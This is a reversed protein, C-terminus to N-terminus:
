RGLAWLAPKNRRRYVTVSGSIPNKITATAETLALVERSTTLAARKSSLSPVVLAVLDALAFPRFLRRYTVGGHIRLIRM